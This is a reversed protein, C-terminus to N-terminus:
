ANINDFYVSLPYMTHAVGGTTKHRNKKKLVESFNQEHESSTCTNNLNLNNQTMKQCTSNLLKEPKILILDISLPYRTLTIGVRKGEKLHNKM